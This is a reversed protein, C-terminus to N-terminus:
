KKSSINLFVSYYFLINVYKTLYATLLLLLIIWNFAKSANDFLQM